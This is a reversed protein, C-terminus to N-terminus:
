GGKDWFYKAGVLLAAATLALCFSIVREKSAFIDEHFILNWTIPLLVFGVLISALYLSMVLVLSSESIRVLTFSIVLVGFSGAMGIWFYIDRLLPILSSPSFGKFEALRFCTYSVAQFSAFAILIAAYFLPNM